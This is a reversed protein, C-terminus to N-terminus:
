GQAGFAREFVGPAVSGEPMGTEPPYYFVLEDFGANRWRGTV